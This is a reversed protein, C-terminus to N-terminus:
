LCVRILFEQMVHRSDLRSSKLARDTDLLLTYIKKLLVSSIKKAQAVYDKAFFPNVGLTRAMDQPSKGAKMEEQALFLLRFHRNVMFLIKVWPEGQLTMQELIQTAKQFSRKGVQDAFEFVNKLATGGASKEVDELTAQVRPHIYIKLKELEGTLTMLSTGAKDALFSAAELPLILGMSQAERVIWGPIENPYPAKLNRVYGKEGATKWIKLRSDIKGATFVVVTSSNPKKFYDSWAEYDEKPLSEGDRILVLRAESMMPLTSAGDLIKVSSDTKASFSDFNFASTGPNLVEQKIWALEREILFPETSILIIIPQFSM